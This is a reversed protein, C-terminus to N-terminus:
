TGYSELERLAQKFQARNMALGPRIEAHSLRVRDPFGAAGVVPIVRLGRAVCAAVKRVQIQSGPRFADLVETETLPPQVADSDFVSLGEEGKRLQFAPKGPEAVRFLM